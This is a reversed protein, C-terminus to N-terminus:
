PRVTLLFVLKVYVSYLFVPLSFGSMVGAGM